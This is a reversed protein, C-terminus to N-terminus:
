IRWGARRAAQKEDDTRPMYSIFDGMPLNLEQILKKDKKQSLLLIGDSRLLDRTGNGDDSRIRRMFDKQRAVSEITDRSIPIGQVERFLAMVRENGTRGSVIRDVSTSPITRWFNPPYPHDAFIWRIHSFGAASISKKADRNASATLYEPRAVFLGLYCRSRIEDAAVLICPHGIAESPIMWNNGMTHKIDTDIGAILADLKGRPLSLLARLMIEVRTGIYTKETKELEDYSRRGTRPTQIVDDIVERLLAPVDQALRGPGGARQDLENLIASTVEFDQHGPVVLSVPINARM